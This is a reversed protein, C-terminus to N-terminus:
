SKYTISGKPKELISSSTELGRLKLNFRIVVLKYSM